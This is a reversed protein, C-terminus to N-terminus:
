VRTQTEAIDFLPTVPHDGSLRQPAQERLVTASGPTRRRLFILLAAAIQARVVLARRQRGEPPDKERRIRM